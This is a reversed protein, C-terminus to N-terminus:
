DLRDVLNDGHAHRCVIDDRVIGCRPAAAMSMTRFDLCFRRYRDGFHQDAVCDPADGLKRLLFLAAADNALGCANRSREQNVSLVFGVFTFGHIPSAVLIDILLQRSLYYLRLPLEHLFSPSPATVCRLVSIGAISLALGILRLVV